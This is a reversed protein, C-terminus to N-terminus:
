VRKVDKDNSRGWGMLKKLEHLLEKEKATAKRKKTRRYIENNARAIQKRLRKM